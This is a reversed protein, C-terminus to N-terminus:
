CREDIVGNEYAYVAAAIEKGTKTEVLVTRGSETGFDIGVAYKNTSM